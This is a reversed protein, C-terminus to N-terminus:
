LSIYIRKYVEVIFLAGLLQALIHPFVENMPIQGLIAQSITVNPNIYGKSFPQIILLLLALSLGIILPNQTTLIIFVFIASGFFETLYQVFM